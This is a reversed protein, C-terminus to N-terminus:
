RTPESEIQPLPSVPTWRVFHRHSILTPVFLYAGVQSNNVEMLLSGDQLRQFSRALTEVAGTGMLAGFTTMTTVGLNSDQKERLSSGSRSVTLGRGDCTFDGNGRKLVIPEINPAYRIALTDNDPQRLEVWPM